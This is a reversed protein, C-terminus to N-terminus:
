NKAIEIECKLDADFDFKEETNFTYGDAKLINAHHEGAAYKFTAIGNADTTAISCNEESCVQVRVGAVPAGTQDVVKVEFKPMEVQAFTITATGSELTYTKGLYETKAIGYADPISIIKAVWEGSIETDYTLTAVGNEDTVPNGKKGASENRLDIKAGVIPTTGAMVKVTYSYSTTTSDDDANDNGGGMDCSALSFAVGLTLILTLVLSLIKKM